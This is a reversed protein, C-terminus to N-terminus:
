YGVKFKKIEEEPVPMGERFTIEIANWRVMLLMTNKRALFGYHLSDATAASGGSPDDATIIKSLFLDTVAAVVGDVNVIQGTTVKAAQQPTMAEIPHLATFLTWDKTGPQMGQILLASGGEDNTLFYEHRRSHEGMEDVEVLLRSEIRYKTGNLTGEGSLEFSSSPATFFKVASPRRTPRSDSM